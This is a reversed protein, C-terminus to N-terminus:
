SRGDHAEIVREYYIISSEPAYDIRESMSAAVFAVRYEYFYSPHKNYAAAVLEMDEVKPQNRGTMLNYAHSPSMSVKRAMQRISTTGKLQNLAKAFPEVTYDARQYKSWFEKAEERTLAPRKGPRGKPAVEVKIIDNLINGMITPDARFVKNWDLKEVSPFQEKIVSYRDAWSVKKDSDNMKRFPAITEEVQEEPTVNVTDNDARAPLDSENKQSLEIESDRKGQEPRQNDVNPEVESSETKDPENEAEQDDDIIKQIMFDMSSEPDSIVGDSSTPIDVLEPRIPAEVFAKAVQKEPKDNM